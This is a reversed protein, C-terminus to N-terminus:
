TEKRHNRIFTSDNNVRKSHFDVGLFESLVINEDSRFSRPSDDAIISSQKCSAIYSAYYIRRFSRLFSLATRPMVRRLSREGRQIKAVYYGSKIAAFFLPGRVALVPFM